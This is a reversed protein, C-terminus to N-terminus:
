AATSIDQDTGALNLRAQHNALKVKLENLRRISDVNFFFCDEYDEGAIQRALGTLVKGPGVEIFTKYGQSLLLRMTETWRVPAAVQHYLSHRAQEGSWVYSANINAIVPLTPHNFPYKNLATGFDEQLGNMLECHFPASVKLRIVGRAEAARAWQEVQEVAPTEGSIVCQEPENYNAVAVKGMVWAQKCWTEVMVVPLGIIATMVGGSTRGVEAMLNGRQRVLKVADSFNLVGAAVLASYEGLSHGAVVAPEYGEARLAGLIVMSTVLISVQTNETQALAPEPGEFCLKSLSFGLVEDAVTFYERSLQPYAQCFDQGMGLRQSGQGPFLFVLDKNFM